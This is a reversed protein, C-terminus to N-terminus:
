RGISRDVGAATWGAPDGCTCAGLDGGGPLLSRLAATSERLLSASLAVARSPELAQLTLLGLGLDVASRQLRDGAEFVRGLYGGLQREGAAAVADLAGVTPHDATPVPRRLLELAQQAGLMTMSWGFSNVAKTLERM